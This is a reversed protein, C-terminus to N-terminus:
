KYLCERLQMPINNYDSKEFDIEDVYFYDIEDEQELILGTKFKNKRAKEEINSILKAWNINTNELPCNKPSGFKDYYYIPDLLWYIMQATIIDCDKHNIVQELTFSGNDYNYYKAIYHLEESLDIEKFKEFIKGQYKKYGIKRQKCYYEYSDTDKCNSMEKEFDEKSMNIYYLDGACSSKEILKRLQKKRKENIM